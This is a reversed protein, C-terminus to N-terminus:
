KIKKKQIVNIVNKFWLGVVSNMTYNNRVWKMISTARLPAVKKPLKPTDPEKKLGCIM